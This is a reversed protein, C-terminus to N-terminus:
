ALEGVPDGVAGDCGCEDDVGFGFGGFAGFADCCEDNLLTKRTERCVLFQVLQPHSATICTFKHELVTEHRFTSQDEDM